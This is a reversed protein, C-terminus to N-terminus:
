IAETGTFRMFVSPEGSGFAIVDYTDPTGPGEMGPSGAPMGPVALGLAQPRQELLKVIAEAPVHGEIVYGAVSATHCSRLAVPVGLTEKVAELNEVDAIEVPFGAGELHKAWGECCSCWPDKSIAITPLAQQARAPAALLAGLTAAGGLLISRRTAM